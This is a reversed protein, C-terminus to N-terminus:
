RRRRWGLVSVGLLVLVVSAPEPVAGSDGLSSGSGPPNGFNQRWLDYGNPGGNNDPDKRWTVYDAADVKGDQNWDGDLGGASIVKL